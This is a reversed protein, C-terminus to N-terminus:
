GAIEKAWPLVLREIGVIIYYLTVSIIALLMIAAFALPTDVNQGSLLIVAGLGHQPSAIEGVVAGIVALTIGVKLGVFVQPLAWPLRIKVYTQAWSASLSRSLDTLEAPTSTLGAMTSVVIPFFSILTVMVIKPTTDFGLWVVLLPAIAVKPVANLGVFLPLTAREVTRSAALTIAIILGVATAVAFGVTTEILTNGAERLLYDPQARFSRIIDAPSPVLFTRINFVITAGWWIAVALVAGILPLVIAGSRSRTNEV